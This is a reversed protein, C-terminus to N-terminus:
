TEHIAHIFMNEQWRRKLKQMSSNINQEGFISLSAFTMMMSGVQISKTECAVM